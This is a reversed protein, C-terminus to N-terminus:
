PKANINRVRNLIEAARTSVQEFAAIPHSAAGATWGTAQAAGSAAKGLVMAAPGGPMAVLGKKAFSFATGAIGATLVGAATNTLASGSISNALGTAETMFATGMWGLAMALLLATNNMSLDEQDFTVPDGVNLATTGYMVVALAATSAFLVMFSSILTRMGSVAMGRGWGFGFGLMLYPSFTALMMIRFISVVVQSFYVILLLFYPVVLAIAYFIPLTNTLSTKRALQGALGLVQMIGTEAKEVLATMGALGSPQVSSQGAEGVSLAVSAASGMVSLSAQYINNVLDPGQGTLLIWAIFVFIFEKGFAALDAQGLIMKLGHIVVWLGVLSLFLLQMPDVLVASLDQTFQNALNVYETVIECTFCNGTM